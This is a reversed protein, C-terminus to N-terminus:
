GRRRCRWIHILSLWLHFSWWMKSIVTPIRQPPVNQPERVTWEQGKTQCRKISGLENGTDLRIVNNTRAKFPASFVLWARAVHASPSAMTSIKNPADAFSPRRKVRRSRVSVGGIRSQIQNLFLWGKIVIPLHNALTLFKCIDFYCDQFAQNTSTKQLIDINITKCSACNRM